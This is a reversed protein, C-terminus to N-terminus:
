KSCSTKNFSNLNKDEDRISYNASFFKTRGRRDVLHNGVFALNEAFANHVFVQPPNGAIDECISLKNNRIEFNDYFLPRREKDWYIKLLSGNGGQPRNKTFFLENNKAVSKKSPGAPKMQQFVLASARTDWIKNNEVVATSRLSIGSGWFSNYVSNGAIFADKAKVYMGHFGEGKRGLGIDHILNNTIKLGPVPNDHDYPNKPTSNGDTIIGNGYVNYIHNDDITINASLKGASIAIGGSHGSSFIRSFKSDEVIVDTSQWIRVGNLKNGGSVKDVVVDDIHVDDSYSIDIADGGVTNNIIVNEIRVNDSDMIRIADSGKINNFTSNRILVNQMGDIYLPKNQNLGEYIVDWKGQSPNPKNESLKLQENKDESLKPQENLSVGRLFDQGSIALFNVVETTHNTEGDKSTDEEIKIRVRDGNLNSYRLGSSDPGDYTAVSALFAPPQAFSNEFNITHWNDTVSNGTQGAQYSNQGWSGTGASIALWGVTENKHGSNGYAEEEEMALQFGSNSANRQRTRVFDSDNDTQVQSFILPDETFDSAYSINEWGNPALLNTDVTGVEIVTSDELQWTGMEMVLYSFSENLHKGDLNGPEQVFATFRDQQVDEIRVIATQHGNYSLPQAFIVPNVYNHDFLITQSDHNFNNVIGTEGIIRDTSTSIEM